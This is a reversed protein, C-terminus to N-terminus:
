SSRGRTTLRTARRRQLPPGANGPRGPRTIPSGDSVGEMGRRLGDTSGMAVARVVNNGVRSSWKWCWAGGDDMAVTIADYIEPLQGSPSRL